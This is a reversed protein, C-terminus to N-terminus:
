IVEDWLWNGWFGWGGWVCEVLVLQGLGLLVLDGESPVSLLRDIRM